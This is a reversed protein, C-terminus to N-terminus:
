VKALRFGGGPLTEAFYDVGLIQLDAPGRSGAMCGYPWLQENPRWLGRLRSGELDVSVHRQRPVDVGLTALRQATEAPIIM